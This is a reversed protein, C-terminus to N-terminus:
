LIAYKSYNTDSNAISLIPLVTDIYEKWGDKYSSNKLTKHFIAQHWESIYTEVIKYVMEYWAQQQEFSDLDRLMSDIRNEMANLNTAIMKIRDDAHTYFYELRRGGIFEEFITQYTGNFFTLPALNQTIYESVLYTENTEENLIYKEGYVLMFEILIKETIEIETVSAGQGSLAVDIYSLDMKKAPTSKGILDYILQYDVGTKKAIEQAYLQAEVKDEIMGVSKAIEDIVKRKEAPTPNEGSGFKLKFDIFSYKPIAEFQEKGYERLYSDPDHNDPLYLIEVEMGESILIDIARMAAKVGASDGDYILVVKKTFRRLLRVQEVTLATGSTAVTNEYGSQHMFITDMYGESLYAFGHKRIAAKAQFLGYLVKNKEYLLTEATNIYKAGESNGIKRGGFGIIKGISSHIPFMIRDRFVDYHKGNKASLICLGAGVISDNSYYANQLHTYLQTWDDPAIGIGFKEATASNIGREKVFAYFKESRNQFFSQAANIVRHLSEMQISRDEPEESDPVTINYKTALHLLAEVYNYGEVEMLFSVSNGGKGSSFCKFINKAPNISFSPTKEKSFPSLGWYNGGKKKLTVYDSVVEVIDATEIIQKVADPKIYKKM